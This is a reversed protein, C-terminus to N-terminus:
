CDLPEAILEDAAFAGTASRVRFQAPVGPVRDATAVTAGDFRIEYTTARVTLEVLHWEGPTYAPGTESWATGRTFAVKGSAALSVQALPNGAADLLHLGLPATTQDAWLRASVRLDGTATLSSRAEASGTLRLSQGLDGAPDAALAASGTTTWGTLNDFRHVAAPTCTGPGAYAGINPAATASVPNGFYDRGGNGAVVAGAGLTPADKLLRYGYPDRVQPASLGPAATVTNTAQAIADVGRFANRDIVWNPDSLSWGITGTGEKRVLNNTFQVDLVAGTNETVLKPAVNGGAVITNNYIKGGSLAGSCVQFGRARDNVSVNYRITFNKTPKDYPCLLFFGGENDHSLNYQFVTGDTSHDVDFAMGDKTTKGGSATNHQFVTGVSNATWMGANPSDSRRNFGTLLNREVLADVGGKVVIGDGGVDYLRNGTISLGTYPQWAGSCLSNWFTALEPRRCWNTWTYIGQRDVSRIENDRVSLGDFWTPTTSGGAEVVIAGTAGAYKGTGHYKDAVTSPMKGRVDHVYLRQLTVGSVKGADAAYVYVGRKVQTNDGPATIELDQLTIGSFGLLVAQADAAGATLVPRAQGTGWAGIVVPGAGRPVYTGTCTVGRKFLVQDGSQLQVASAAALSNFPSGTSGDGPSAASCDVHYATAASAPTAPLALSAALVAAALLPPRIRM